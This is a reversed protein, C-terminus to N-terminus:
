LCLALPKRRPRSPVVLRHLLSRDPALGRDPPQPNKSGKQFACRRATTPQGGGSGASSIRKELSQHKKNGNQSAGSPMATTGSIRSKRTSGKGFSRPPRKEFAGLIGRGRSARRKSELKNENEGKTPSHECVNADSKIPNSASRCM